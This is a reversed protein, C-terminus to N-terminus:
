HTYDHSKVEGEYGDVQWNYPRKPWDFNKRFTEDLEKDLSKIATLSLKSQKRKETVKAIVFILAVVILLGIAGGIGGYEVM